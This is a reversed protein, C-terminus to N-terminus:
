SEVDQFSLKKIELFGRLVLNALASMYDPITYDNNITEIIDIFISLVTLESNELSLKMIRNYMMRDHYLLESIMEDWKNKNVITDAQERKSTPLAYSSNILIGLEAIKQLTPEENIRYSLYDVIYSLLGDDLIVCNELLDSGRNLWEQVYEMNLDPRVKTKIEIFEMSSVANLEHGDDKTTQFDFITQRLKDKIQLNFLYSKEFLESPIISQTVLDTKKPVPIGLPSDCNDYNISINSRSIPDVPYQSRVVLSHDVYLINAKYAGDLCMHIDVLEAYGSSGIEPSVVDPLLMQRESDCCNCTYEITKYKNASKSM